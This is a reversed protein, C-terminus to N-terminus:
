YISTDWFYYGHLQYYGGSELFYHNNGEYLGYVQPTHMDSWHIKYEHPTIYHMKHGYCKPVPCVMNRTFQIAELQAPNVSRVGRHRSLLEIEIKKSDEYQSVQLAPNIFM